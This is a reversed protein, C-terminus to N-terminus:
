HHLRNHVVLHKEGHPLVDLDTAAERQIRLNAKRKVISIITKTPKLTRPWGNTRTMHKEIQNTEQSGSKRRLSTSFREEKQAHLRSSSLRSYIHRSSVLSMQSTTRKLPFGKYCLLQLFSITDKKTQSQVSLPWAKSLLGYLHLYFSRQFMFKVPSCRSAHLFCNMVIWWVACLLM